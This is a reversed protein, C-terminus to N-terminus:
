LYKKDQQIVQKTVVKKMLRRERSGSDDSTKEYSDHEKLMAEEHPNTSLSNKTLETGM